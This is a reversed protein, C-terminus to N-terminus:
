RPQGKEPARNWITIVALLIIFLLLGGVGAGMVQFEQYAILIGLFAIALVFVTGVTSFSRRLLAIMGYTLLALVLYLGIVLLGTRRITQEKNQLFAEQAKVYDIHANEQEKTAAMSAAIVEQEKASVQDELSEIIAKAESEKSFAELYTQIVTHSPYPSTQNALSYDSLGPFLEELAQVSAQEEALTLRLEGIKETLAKFQAESYALQAGTVAFEQMGDTFQKQAVSLEAKQTILQEIQSDLVRIQGEVSKVKLEADWYTKFTDPSLALDTPLSELFPHAAQLSAIQAQTQRLSAQQKNLEEQLATLEAQAGALEAKTTVVGTTNTFFEKVPEEAKKDTSVQEAFYSWLGIGGVVLLAVLILEAWTLALKTRSM